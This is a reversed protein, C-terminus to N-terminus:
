GQVLRLWWPRTPSSRHSGSTASAVESFEEIVWSGVPHDVAHDNTPLSHWKAQWGQEPWPPPEFLHLHWRVPQFPGSTVTQFTQGQGAELHRTTLSLRNDVDVSLIVTVEPCSARRRLADKLVPVVLAFAARGITIDIRNTTIDYREGERDSAAFEQTQVTSAAAAHPAISLDSCSKADISNLRRMYHALSAAAGHLTVDAFRMADWGCHRAITLNVYYRRLGSLAIESGAPIERRTAKVAPLREIESKVARIERDAWRRKPAWSPFEMRGKDSLQRWRLEAQIDELHLILENYKTQDIM